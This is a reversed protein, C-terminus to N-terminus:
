TVSYCSCEENTELVVRDSCLDATSVTALMRLRGHFHVQPLTSPSSGGSFYFMFVPLVLYNTFVANRMAVPICSM